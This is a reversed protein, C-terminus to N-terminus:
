QFNNIGNLRNNKIFFSIIAILLLIVISIIPIRIKRFINNNSFGECVDPCEDCDKPIIGFNCLKRCKNCKRSELRNQKVDVTNYERQVEVCKDRREDKNIHSCDQFTRITTTTPEATTTTPKATTTTPKATTTTPNATTTTPAVTTTTTPTVTTTTPETTTTIPDTTQAKKPPLYTYSSIYLAPPAKTTTTTPAVTTTTPAVTTTTPVKTTTTTPTKTTTTTPVATTTPPIEGNIKLGPVAWPGTLNIAMRELENM